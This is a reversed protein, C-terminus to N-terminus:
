NVPKIQWTGLKLSKAVWKRLANKTGTKRDLIEGTQTNIIDFTRPAMDKSPRRIVPEPKPKPAPAKAM